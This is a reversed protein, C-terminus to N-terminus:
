FIVIKTKQCKLFATLLVFAQTLASFCVDDGGGWYHAQKNRGEM